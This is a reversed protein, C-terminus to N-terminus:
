RASDSLSEAFSRIQSPSASGVVLVSETAGRQRAPRSQALAYDGGPDTWSQWTRGGITVSRGRTADKGVYQEVQDSVPALGEELGVYRGSATLIGLHWHPDVGTTYQASTARWGDPTHSPALITLKGDGRGSKVYGSYDVTSVPTPKNDRNLARFAVFGGVVLLVMVMAGVMGSIPLAYRSPTQQSM